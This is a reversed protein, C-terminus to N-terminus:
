VETATRDEDARTAAPAPPRAEPSEPAVIAPGPAEPAGIAFGGETLTAPDEEGFPAPEEPAAAPAAAEAAVAAIAPDAPPPAEMPFLDLQKPAAGPRAAEMGAETAFPQEEPEMGAETAFLTPAPPEPPGPPAAEAAPSASATAVAAAPAAAPGADGRTEQKKEQKREQKAEARAEAKREAAHAAAGAPDEGIPQNTFTYFDLKELSRTLLTYALLLSLLSAAAYGVGYSHIGEGVSWAALSANLVLFVVSSIFAQNRLDFYLQMLITILMLVHFLAGLATLRFIRVSVDPMELLDMIQPAFVICLVTIAGQVRVLRICSERLDEFMRERKREITALPMGGLIAGYYARYHEYFSTELRILNVALAPVVTLYALFCCTDYLPHFRVLWHAQQGDSFWFVMKDAWIALNYTLGVGVLPPFERLSSFVSFDRAGGTDMGHVITRLLLLLTFAQGAAYAGLLGATGGNWGVAALALVSVLMGYVYARLVEDYERAVSLWILALWSLSVIVYLSTAVVSLALPFRAVACFAGGIATQLLATVLLCASFAPLVRGYEKRYLHDAVRRTVAMQGIGQVILSFAFAYTVLARFMAFDDNVGLRPAGMSLASLTLITMIWPGSSILGACLYARVRAIFGERQDIMKRLEFGIGAV